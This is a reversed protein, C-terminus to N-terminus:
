PSQGHGARGGTVADGRDVDARQGQDARRQGALGAQGFRQQSGGSRDACGTGQFPSAGDAVVVRHLPAHLMRQVRRDQVQVVAAAPDVQDVGRARGVELALGQRRQFRHFRGGDDDVGAAADLRDRHAHHRVRGLALEVPEDDDVLDVGGADVQRGQQRLDLFGEAAFAQRQIKRVLAAVLDDVAEELALPVAVEARDLVRVPREDLLHDLDVFGEDFAVQGVAVDIRGLQVRRQLLRQALPVQDRHAEDGRAGAGAHGLQQVHDGLQQGIWGLRVRGVKEVALAIGRHRHDGFGVGVPVHQRM